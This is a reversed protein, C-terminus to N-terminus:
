MIVSKKLKLIAICFCYLLFYRKYGDFALLQDWLKM